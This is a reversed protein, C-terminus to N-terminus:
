REDQDDKDARYGAHPQYIVVVLKERRNACQDDANDCANSEAPIWFLEEALVKLTHRSGRKLSTSLLQV